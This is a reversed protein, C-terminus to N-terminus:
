IGPKLSKQLELVVRRMGVLDKLPFPGLQPLLYLFLKGELEDRRIRRLLGLKGGVTSPEIGWYADM